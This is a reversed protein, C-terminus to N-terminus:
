AHWQEITDRLILGKMHGHTCAGLTHTGSDPQKCVPCKGDSFKDLYPEQFQMALKANWYAGYRLRLANRITGTELRKSGRSFRNESSTHTNQCYCPSFRAGCDYMYLRFMATALDALGVYHGTCHHRYTEHKGVMTKVQVYALRKSPMWQQLLWITVPVKAKTPGDRMQM